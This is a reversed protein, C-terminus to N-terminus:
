KADAWTEGSDVEAVIPVTTCVVGGAQQMSTRLIERWKSVVGDKVELVIEDHVMSILRAEHEAHQLHKWLKAIAIKAIDGATGQVQTNIRTTFKDNFGVLFRRRGYRTFVAKTQGEGQDVQWQYLQPYAERFQNVLRKAEELDIDIGYQSISQKRLTAPGAGYLLGFNCNGQVCVKGNRRILILGSPVQVCYVQQAEVRQPEWSVRWTPTTRFAYSVKYFAGTSVASNEEAYVTCPIGATVAMAQMVDATQKITTGVIVRDRASGEITIGDWYQAECLYARKNVDRMCAAYQLEKDKTVYDLLWPAEELRFKFFTTKGNTGNSYINKSYDLGLEELLEQCRHAKRRKAFGLSVWGSTQKFSGDAVVMALLRSELVGLGCKTSAYGAAVFARPHVVDVLPKKHANGYTDLYFIEHNGTAMVDVNRDSSHWVDESFFSDYHLPEVFEISGCNGDWTAPLGAAYGPGPKRAKQNLEIGAPLVYQAVPQGGYEGLAVWGESTLVETDASFCVKASTRDEKTVEEATKHTMLSATETHLDRGALYAEIMRPEGSLEGAVRLEIQSFDAVVIKWGENAVFLVRFAKERPVQQLNPGACSLRGTDTGMQKYNAHIRGDVNVAKILTEICSVRTAAEKWNMYQDILPSDARLFALLNQDMSPKGKENPPLIIGIETFKEVMQQPARPNFGKYRKTGKRISGEDKARTNYTGDSDLPLWRGPENPYKAKLREQLTDLLDVMLEDSRAILEEKLELAAQQDFGFGYWQMFAIPRLCQCELKFVDWLTVEGIHAGRLKASLPQVLQPLVWADRAAYLVQEESLEGDWREKQLDKPLDIDLERSAIAGLNNPAGQGNNVIKAAIMTDFIHGGLVVGEGRLFNLDFAANQLVKPREGALLEWLEKLGPTGWDVLREGGERFANLDVVLCIDGAAVQVLRVRDSIPDLGTTETDVGLPGPLGKLLDVVQTIEPAESRSSVYCIQLQDEHAM